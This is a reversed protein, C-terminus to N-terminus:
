GANLPRVIAMADNLKYRCRQCFPADAKGSAPFHARLQQSARSQWVSRFSCDRFINGLVREHQHDCECVLLTGDHCLTPWTWPKRCLNPIRQYAGATEEDRYQFSRLALNLPLEPHSPDSDYYLSVNKATFYDAGIDRAFACIDEIESENKRVAIARINIIPNSIGLSRKAEVAARAFRKVADLSSGRRFHEQSEQTAGDMSIILHGLGAQFLSKLDVSEPDVQGNTSLLTLINYRGALCVMDVIRRYLLPEGWRWFAIALLYPGVEKMVREYNEWAMELGDAGPDVIQRPCLPCSLHCAFTPELQLAIPYSWPKRVRRRAEVGSLLYNFVQRHTLGECPFKLGDSEFELRRNVLLTTLRALKSSITM